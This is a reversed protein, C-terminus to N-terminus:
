GAVIEAVFAETDRARVYRVSVRTASNLYCPDPKVTRPLIHTLHATLVPGLGQFTENPGLFRENWGAYCKAHFTPLFFLM